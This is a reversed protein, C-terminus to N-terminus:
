SKLLPKVGAAAPRSPYLLRNIVRLKKVKM